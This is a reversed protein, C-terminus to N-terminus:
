MGATGVEEISLKPYSVEKMKEEFIKQYKEEEEDVYGQFFIEQIDEENFFFTQQGTQGVPHLCGAYDFYGIKGKNNYLPVRSTIMLKRKGNKLLVVSGLPLINM